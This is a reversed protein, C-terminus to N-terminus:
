LKFDIKKNLDLKYFKQNKKLEEPKKKDAILVKYNQNSFYDAVHSGLFGSGGIIVIKKNNM